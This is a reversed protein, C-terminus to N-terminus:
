CSKKKKNSTKIFIVSILLLIAGEIYILDTKNTEEIIEYSLLELGDHRDALYITDNSVQVCYARGGDNHGNIKVPNSIDEISLIELGADGSALFVLNDKIYTDQAVGDTEFRSVEFINASDTVNLIKLDGSASDHDAVFLYGNAITPYFYLANTEQYTGLSVLNDPDNIDIAILSMYSSGLITAFLVGENIAIANCYFGGYQNILQPNSANSVDVIELGNPGSAIYALNEIVIAKHVFGGNSFNGLINPFRPDSVDVIALGDEGNTIYAINEKVFLSSSIGTNSSSIIEPSNINTINIIVFGDTTGTDIVYALNNALQVDYTGGGTNISSDEVLVIDITTASVSQNLIIISSVLLTLLRLKYHSKVLKMASCLNSCKYLIIQNLEM